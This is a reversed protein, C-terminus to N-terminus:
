ITLLITWVSRSVSASAHLILSGVHFSGKASECPPRRKAEDAARDQGDPEADVGSDEAQRSGHQQTRQRIAIRIPEDIQGFGGLRVQEGDMIRRDVAAPPFRGKDEGFYFDDGRGGREIMQADKDTAWLTAGTARKLEAFGGAHDFHAQTNLLIKIDRLRAGVKQVNAEIV